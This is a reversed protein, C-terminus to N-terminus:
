RPALVSQVSFKSPLNLDEYIASHLTRQRRQHRPEGPLGNCMWAVALGQQPDAFGSSSQSGSHGFTDPSAHDGYSYPLTAPSPHLPHVIFGLGMDIVHRFTRDFLGTRHRRTFLSLTAPKLLGRGGALLAEYFRGLERIPGRANGGPRCAVCRLESDWFPHPTAPQRSTNHTTAIRPGYAHFRAAPMGIWSDSMGLPLLVATRIHESFPTSTLRQVIEALLYWGAQPQYAAVTGPPTEPDAPTDCIAALVAQWGDNEPLNELVPFGTTHTLLHQLTISAKGHRGFEPIFDAVCADLALRGSDLLQAIAIATLPKGSSLWLVLSDTTMPEGPRTEGIAVSAVTQGHLSVYLQAGLHHGDAIGQELVALTRPLPHTTSPPTM